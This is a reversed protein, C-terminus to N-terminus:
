AGVTRLLLVSTELTTGQWTAGGCGADLIRIPPPPLVRHLFALTQEIALDIPRM